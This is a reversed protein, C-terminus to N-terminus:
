KLTKKYRVIELVDKLQRKKDIKLPLPVLKGTAEAEAFASKITKDINLNMVGSRTKETFHFGTKFYGDWVSLWFVTKKNYVAKGLWSKGDKYFRWEFTLGYEKGIITEILEQLVAYSKGLAKQLVEPAPYVNQDNLLQTEM